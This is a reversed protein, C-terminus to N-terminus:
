QQHMFSLHQRVQLQGIFPETEEDVEIHRADLIADSPDDALCTKKTDQRRPPLYISKQIAVSRVSPIAPLPPSPTIRSPSIRARAEARAPKCVVSVLLKPGCIRPPSVLTRRRM